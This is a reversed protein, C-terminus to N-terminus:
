MARSLAVIHPSCIAIKFKRTGTGNVAFTLVAEAGDEHKLLMKGVVDSAVQTKIFLSILGSTATLIRDSLVFDAFCHTPYKAHMAMKLLKNAESHGLFSIGRRVFPWM